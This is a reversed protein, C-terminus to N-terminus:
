NSADAQTSAWAVLRGEEVIARKGKKKVKGAVVITGDAYGIEGGTVVEGGIRERAHAREEKEDM